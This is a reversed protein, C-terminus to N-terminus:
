KLASVIATVDFKIMDIYTPAPGGSLTISHTVLDSVVKVGTDAAVQNAIQPNAGAELFIARAHTAQIADELSAIQQASPSADTSVSPIVTGVIRLGYRDAFYGFDDHDTVMLRREPPIASVQAQVWQDLANLQAIYAAANRTYEGAGSPDARILGDRINQVYQIADLPDLWFHPDISGEQAVEGARAARPKLGNSAEIVAAQDGTNDITKQLWGELGAGNAIIVQAQALKVVDQPSPDFSHPDVGIPILSEVTARSGAVNQAMDGLFTEIATVRLGSAAPAPTPVGQCGALMAAAGLM